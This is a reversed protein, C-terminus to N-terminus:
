KNWVYFMDKVLINPRLYTKITKGSYVEIRLVLFAFKGWCSGGYLVHLALKRREKQCKQKISRIKKRVHMLMVSVPLCIRCPTCYLSCLRYEGVTRSCFERFTWLHLLVMCPLTPPPPGPSPYGEKRRRGSVKGFWYEHVFIFDRARIRSCKSSASFDVKWPSSDKWLDYHVAPSVIAVM